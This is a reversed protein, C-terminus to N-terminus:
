PKQLWLVGANKPDVKAELNRYLKLYKQMNERFSLYNNTELHGKGTIIKLRTINASIKQLHLSVAVIGSGHSFGHLDLVDVNNEKSERITSPLKGSKFINVAEKFNRRNVLVDIFVHYTIDNALKRQVAEDFARQAEEFQGNKGAADIYSSYTVVNALREQIAAKFVRQAEDFQGNKGAADIYSNYTVANALREQIAAEFVRQAEDFRGNKGAADIYSSYTVVNALKRQVAEDFARQAEDFQGNKGAADIYSNYTV